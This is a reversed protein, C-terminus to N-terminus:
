NQLRERNKANLLFEWAPMDFNNEIAEVCMQLAASNNSLSKIAPASLESINELCWREGGWQRVMTATKAKKNLKPSIQNKIGNTFDDINVGDLNDILHKLLRNTPTKKKILNYVDMDSITPPFEKSTSMIDDMVIKQLVGLRETGTTNSLEADIEFSTWVGFDEGAFKTFIVKNTVGSKGLRQQYRGSGRIQGEGFSPLVGNVYGFEKKVENKARNYRQLATGETDASYRALIDSRVYQDLNSASSGERKDLAGQKEVEDVIAKADTLVFTDIREFPQGLAAGLDSLDKYITNISQPRNAVDGATLAQAKDTSLGAWAHYVLRTDGNRYARMMASNLLGEDIYESKFGLSGAFVQRAYPNKNILEYHEWFLDPNEKYFGNDMKTQYEAAVAQQKVKIAKEEAQKNKDFAKNFEENLEQRLFPFKALIRNKPTDKDAGPIMYGDKHEATVGMVQELFHDFNGYNPMESKAWGVINARINPVIPTSYSGDNNQIPRANTATIADIFLANKRNYNSEKIKPDTSFKDTSLSIATVKDNFGNIVESTKQYDEGLTIQHEAAFGKQRYFNQLKLGTESDPNIGYQKMLEHVRFQYLGVVTKKNVPINNQDLFTRFDREYGDFQKFHDLVFMEKSVPNHLKDIGSLYDYVQKDDMNGTKFYNQIANFRQNADARFDVDSKIKQHVKSISGITGDKLRREYEAIGAETEFYKTASGIANGVSRALTPSLAGWVDLLKKQEDIRRKFDQQERDNNRKLADARLKEPIEVEVKRVLKRNEEELKAARDIGTIYSQDAQRQQDRLNALAKTQRDGQIQMARLGGDVSPLQRSGRAYKTLYKKTAM